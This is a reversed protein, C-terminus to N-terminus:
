WDLSDPNLLFDLLNIRLFGENTYYHKGGNKVIIAKKFSEDINRLSKYEQEKKEATSIELAVQIYYNKGNRSAVFDVETDCDVYIPKNNKDVRDTKEKVKVVGVDVRFGRFRLENYVINEILDTEDIEKFDLAANRIGIDEFYIKYPTGIYQRGKVDYRFVRKCLFADEFWRIYESVADNTAKLCYVSRFTNEIRTPNIPTSIMSSLVKFTDELQTHDARPHRLQLDKLYTERYISTAQQIKSEENPQLEVLPLGGFKMYEDLAEAASLGSKSLYEGFSLPLLHIRDGRGNFETDVESSLFRSNSGTVYVDCNGKYLFSNLVRVFNELNQIEDLLLYFQEKENTNERIFALFKRSSVFSERGIKVLTDKEPYYKDLKEIDEENDFAFRIVNKPDVKKENILYNYFITNLLFSKGCRRLGTIVKILGNNQKQKLKELYALREFILM